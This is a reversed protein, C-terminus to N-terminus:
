GARAQADVLAAVVDRGHHVTEPTAITVVGFPTIVSRLARWAPM